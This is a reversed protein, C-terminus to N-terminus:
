ARGPPAPRVTRASRPGSTPARSSTAIGCNPGSGALIRLDPDDQVRLRVQEHDVSGLLVQKSLPPRDYPPWHTEAGILTVPGTHGERRLAQVTRLGALSGGVVLIRENINKSAM